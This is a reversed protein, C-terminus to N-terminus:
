ISYRGRLANFNQQIEAASLARNYIKLSSQSGSTYTALNYNTFSRVLNQSITLTSSVGSGVVSREVGNIYIKLIYPSGFSATAAFEYWTNNTVNTNVSSYGSNVAVFLNNLNDKALCYGITGTGFNGSDIISQYGGTNFNTFQVFTSITFSSNNQLPQSGVNIYQTTGNFVISGNSYTPSNVLTGHNGLGSMDTWTTGSGPYSKVNAADLALVLGDTVIKPNYAVAM